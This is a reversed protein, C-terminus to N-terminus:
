ANEEILQQIQKLHDWSSPDLLGRGMLELDVTVLGYIQDILVQHQTQVGELTAIQDELIAVTEASWQVIEEYAESM